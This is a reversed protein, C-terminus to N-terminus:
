IAKLENMLKFKRGRFKKSDYKAYIDKFKQVIAETAEKNPKKYNFSAAYVGMMLDVM